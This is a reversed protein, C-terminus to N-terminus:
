PRLGSRSLLMHAAVKYRKVYGFPFLAISTLMSLLHPRHHDRDILALGALFLSRARLRHFPRLLPSVRPGIRRDYARLEARYMKLGDNSGMTAHQRYLGLADPCAVFGAGAQEMKLWLDWDECPQASSEFGGVRLFTDRRVVACTPVFRMRGYLSKAVDKNPPASRFARTFEDSGPVQVLADLGSFCVDAGESAELLAVQRELKGPLWVDDQDLFAIWKCSTLAVGRNRSASVGANAQPLVRVGPFSRAIAASSDPSGDDIVLIEKAPRTQALVSRLAEALYAEGNYIPIIVAVSAESDSPPPPSQAVDSM